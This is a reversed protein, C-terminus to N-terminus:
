DNNITFPSCTPCTQPDECAITKISERDQDPADTAHERKTQPQAVAYTTTRSQTNTISYLGDRSRTNAYIGHQSPKEVSPATLRDRLKKIVSTIGAM